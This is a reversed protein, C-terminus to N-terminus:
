AQTTSGQEIVASQIVIGEEIQLSRKCTKGPISRLRLYLTALMRMGQHDLHTWLWERKEPRAEERQEEQVRRLQKAHCKPLAPACSAFM